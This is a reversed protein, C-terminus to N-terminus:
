YGRGGCVLIAPPREARLKGRDNRIEVRTKSGFNDLSIGYHRLVALVPVSLLVAGGLPRAESHREFLQVEYGRQLMALATSVGGPGAGVIAVRRGREPSMDITAGCKIELPSLQIRDSRSIM